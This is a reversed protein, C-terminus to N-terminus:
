GDDAETQPAPHGPRPPLLEPRGTPRGLASSVRICTEIDKIQYVGLYFTDVFFLNGYPLREPPDKPDFAPVEFSNRACRYTPDYPVAQIKPDEYTLRMAGRLDWTSAFIPVDHDTVVRDHRFTVIGAGPPPDPLQRKMGGVLDQAKEWSTAWPAQQIVERVALSVVSLALVIVALRRVLHRKKLLEAVMRATLFVLAVLLV